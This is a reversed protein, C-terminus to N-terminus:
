VSVEEKKFEVYYEKYNEMISKALKLDYNNIANVVDKADEFNFDPNDNAFKFVLQIQEWVWNTLEESQLWFNSLVRYEFGWEKLRIAGAKGYMQRRETDEDLFLSPLGLFYDFLKAIFLSDVINNNGYSIHIHGM